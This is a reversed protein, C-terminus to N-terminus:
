RREQAGDDEDAHAADIEALAAARAPSDLRVDADAIELPLDLGGAIQQAATIAEERRDLDLLALEISPQRGADRALLRIRQGYITPATSRGSLSSDLPEAAVRVARFRAVPTRRERRGLRWDTVEVVHERSAEIVVAHRSFCLWWGLPLVMAALMLLLWAGLAAVLMAEVGGGRFGTVLSSVVGYLLVAGWLTLPVGIVYRLLPIRQQRIVLHGHDRELSITM